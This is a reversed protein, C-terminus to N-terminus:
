SQRRRFNRLLSVGGGWLGKDVIFKDRLYLNRKLAEIAAVLGGAEEM